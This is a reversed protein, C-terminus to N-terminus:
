EYDVVEFDNNDGIYAIINEDTLCDEVELRQTEQVHENNAGIGDQIDINLDQDHLYNEFDTYEINVQFPMSLGQLVNQNNEPYQKLILVKITGNHVFIDDYVNYGFLIFKSKISNNM